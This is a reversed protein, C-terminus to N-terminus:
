RNETALPRRAQRRERRRVLLTDGVEVGRRPEREEHGLARRRRNNLLQVIGSNRGHIHGGHLLPQPVDAVIRDRGLTPRRVVQLFEDRAFDLFPRDRDLSGAHCPLLPRRFCLAAISAVSLGRLSHRRIRKNRWLWEATYGNRGVGRLGAQRGAHRDLEGRFFTSLRNLSVWRRSRPPSVMM